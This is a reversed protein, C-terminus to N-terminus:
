RVGEASTKRGDSSIGAGPEGARTGPFSGTLGLGSSGGLGGAKGRGRSAGPSRGVLGFEGSASLGPGAAATAEGAQVVPPSGPSNESVGTATKDCGGAALAALAALLALGCAQANRSM